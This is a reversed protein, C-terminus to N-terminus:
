AHMTTEAISSSITYPCILNCSGDDDPRLWKSMSEAQFNKVQRRAQNGKSIPAKSHDISGDLLAEWVLLSVGAPRELLLM